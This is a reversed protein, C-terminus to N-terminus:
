RHLVRVGLLRLTTEDLPLTLSAVPQTPQYFAGFLPGMLSRLHARHADATLTYRPAHDVMWHPNFARIEGDYLRQRDSGPFIEFVNVHLQLDIIAAELLYEGEWHRALEPLHPDRAIVQRILDQCVHPNTLTHREKPSDLHDPDPMSWIPNRYFPNIANIARSLSARLNM